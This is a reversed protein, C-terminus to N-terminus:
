DDRELPNTKLTSSRLMWEHVPDNRFIWAREPGAMVNLYYLDYGHAAGVPHYGKPVLVLDRDEVLVVQDISRDDTYVRQVGFGQPPNIRYYYIEELATEVETSPTDHKHPPYSSWHGGPTIVEVVILSHAPQTQPLINRIYRTNTGKGRVETPMAEPAILRPQYGNVGPASCIAVEIEGDPDIEFRTATPVYVAGPPSDDFPSVRSGVHEFTERGVSVRGSGSIFVLCIERSPDLGVFKQHAARRVVSFGVYKWSASQPTIELITGAADPAKPRVRLSSM